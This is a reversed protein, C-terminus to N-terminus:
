EQSGRVDDCDGAVFETSQQPGAVRRNCGRRLVDLTQGIEVTITVAVCSIEDKRNQPEPLVRAVITRTLASVGHNAGTAARADNAYKM